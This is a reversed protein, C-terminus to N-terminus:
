KQGWSLSVRSKDALLYPHRPQTAAYAAAAGGGGGAGKYYPRRVPMPGLGGDDGWGRGPSRSRRPAAPAPVRQLPPIRPGPWGQGQGQSGGDEAVQALQQQWEQQHRRPDHEVRHANWPPRQQPPSTSARLQAPAAAPMAPGDEPRPRQKAWQAIGGPGAGAQPRPRMTPRQDPRHPSADRSGAGPDYPDPLGAFADTAALAAKRVAVVRDRRAAALLGALEPRLAILAKVAPTIM